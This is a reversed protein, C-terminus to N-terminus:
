LLIADAALEKLQKDFTVLRLGATKAFAALYADTWASHGARRQRTLPRWEDELNDPEALFYFRPDSMLEDYLEWAKAQPVVDVGMVHENTLLRLVGMQAIRCVAVSQDRVESIWSVAAENHVHQASFLAVWVNVDPLFNKLKPTQLSLLGLGSPHCFRFSLGGATHSEDLAPQCSM